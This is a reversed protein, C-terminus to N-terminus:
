CEGPEERSAQSDLNNERGGGLNVSDRTVSVPVAWSDELPSKSEVENMWVVARLLM